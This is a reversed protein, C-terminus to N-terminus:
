LPNRPSPPFLGSVFDMLMGLRTYYRNKEEEDNCEKITGYTEKMFEKARAEIESQTGSFTVVFESDTM